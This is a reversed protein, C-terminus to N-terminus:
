ARPYAAVGDDAVRSPLPLTIVQFTNRPQFRIAAGGGNGPPPLRRLVGSGELTELTLFAARELESEIGSALARQVQLREAPPLEQLPLVRELLERLGIDERKM